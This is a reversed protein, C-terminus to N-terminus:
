TRLQDIPTVGVGGHAKAVAHGWCGAEALVALSKVPWDNEREGAVAERLRARLSDFDIM